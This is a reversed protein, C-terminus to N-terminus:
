YVNVEALVMSLIYLITGNLKRELNKNESENLYAEHLTAININNSKIQKLIARRKM